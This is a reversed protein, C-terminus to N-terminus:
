ESSAVDHCVDASCSQVSKREEFSQGIGSQYKIDELEINALKKPSGLSKSEDINIVVTDALNEVRNSDLIKCSNLDQPEIGDGIIFDLM